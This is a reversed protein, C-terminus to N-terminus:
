PSPVLWPAVARCATGLDLGDIPDARLLRVDRGRPATRAPDSAGSFLVLTPCGAVAAMHMPGSDNGVALTAGQLLAALEVLSTRGGLDVAGPCAQAVARTLAAETSAGVLVPTTGQELLWRGLGAFRDAPWRKEPRHAAAGPALVAYRGPLGLPGLDADAWSLDPAPVEPIGAIALQARQREITHRSGRAPDGHPHSCGPAVGSWEPERGILRRYWGTRESTQLDYVRAFRGTRLRRALAVVRDPRWPGPRDDIWVEDAYPAARLFAAYPATTLITVSGAAHHRRIAAMPGLSLVIDGLAGHKIVLIRNGAAMM